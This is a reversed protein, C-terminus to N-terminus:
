TLLRRRLEPTPVRCQDSKGFWSYRRKAFQSYALDRLGRPVWRFLYYLLPWPWRLSKAVHLAADSRLYAKGGEILVVTSLPLNSLGYQRLTEIGADSQLAAFRFREHPDRDLVFLVSGNCFNCVGDFLLVRKDESAM